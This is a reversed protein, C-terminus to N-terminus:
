IKSEVDAITTGEARPIQRNEQVREKHHQKHSPDGGSNCSHDEAEIDLQIVLLQKDKLFM